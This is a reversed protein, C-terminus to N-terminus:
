AAPAPELVPTHTRRKGAYLAAVQRIREWDLPAQSEGRCPVWCAGCDTPGFRGPTWEMYPIGEPSESCRYVLGSPSVTVFKRGSPCGSIGGSKFYEPIRRLYYTSSTMTGGQLKVAVAKGILQQLATAQQATINHADNGNKASTYASM